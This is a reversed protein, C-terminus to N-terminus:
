NYGKIRNDSLGNPLNSVIDNELCYFQIGEPFIYDMDYPLYAGYKEIFDILKKMGSRRIIMSHAGYRAGIKRFHVSIPQNLLLLEPHTFTFNPREAYALCPVYEGENNKYDRDTFLIDWNKPGVLDDLKQIYQSIKRPDDVVEIDDEMVWITKFGSRYADYLISFHSLLIGIAGLPMGINFYARGPTSTIEHVPIKNGDFPYYTAMMPKMWPEYKLGIDNIAEVTLDEWGNVASFRYPIIGYPALQELSKQYKEPRKDLNIMYIYDINKISHGKAKQIPKIHDVLAGSLSSFLFIFLTVIKM